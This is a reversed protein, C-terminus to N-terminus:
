RTASRAAAAVAAEVDSVPSTRGRRAVPVGAAAMANRADIKDGMRDIADPSPGIWVLGAAEVARAFAASEALFGYGPHIAQAGSRKAAELVKAHDLYSEAPPAPGLLM